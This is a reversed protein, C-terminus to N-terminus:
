VRETWGGNKFIEQNRTACWLVRSFIEQIHDSHSAQHQQKFEGMKAAVAMEPLEKLVYKTNIYVHAPGVIVAM